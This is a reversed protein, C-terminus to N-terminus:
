VGDMWEKWCIKFAKKDLEDKTVEIAKEISQHEIIRALRFARLGRNWYHIMVVKNKMVNLDKTRRLWPELRNVDIVPSETTEVVLDYKLAASQIEPSNAGHPTIWRIPQVGLKQDFWEKSKELHEEIEQQSRSGYNEHDWGHLDPSILEEETMRKLIEIGEPFQEIDKCLIAPTLLVETNLFWKVNKLFKQVEKGKIKPDSSTVIADDFRIRIPKIM